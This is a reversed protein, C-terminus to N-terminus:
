NDVVSDDCVETDSPDGFEVGAVAENELAACILFRILGARSTHLRAAMRDLDDQQGKRLGVQIVRENRSM